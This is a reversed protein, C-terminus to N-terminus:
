LAPLVLRNVVKLNLRATADFPRQRPQHLGSSSLKPVWRKENMRAGMGLELPRRPHQFSAIKPSMGASVCKFSLLFFLQLWAASGSMM